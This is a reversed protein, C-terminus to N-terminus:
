EAAAELAEPPFDANSYVRQVDDLDDLGDLLRLTALAAKQDLEVVNRPLRATESRAVPFGASALANRVSEVDSPPTIVEVGNEDASVDDAGAEIAALQVADPDVGNADITVIGRLEFQWAVAGAEALNGGGKSFVNRVDAATRNRNDTVTEVLVAAGGPGYGEYTIEELMDADGGGAGRRTARDINDNPMNADKAKQIALRLTANMTPDGGGARAAMTIERALKTFLQGRKADTAAKKHKISSWKSHGSM